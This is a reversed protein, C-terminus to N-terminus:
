SGSGPFRRTRQWFRDPPEARVRRPVRNRREPVGIDFDHQSRGVASRRQHFKGAVAVCRGFQHLAEPLVSRGDVFEAVGDAQILDVGIIEIRSKADSKRPRDPPGFVTMRRSGQYRLSSSAPLGTATIGLPTSRAGFPAPSPRNITPSLEFDDTGTAWASNPTMPGDDILGSLFTDHGIKGGILKLKLSSGGRGVIVAENLTLELDGDDAVTVDRHRDIDDRGLARRFLAVVDQHAGSIGLGTQDLGLGVNRKNAFSVVQDDDIDPRAIFVLRGVAPQRCIEVSGADIGAGDGLHHKGVRMRIVDPAREGFAAAQSKWVRGIIDPGGLPIEPHIRIVAVVHWRHQMLEGFARLAIEARDPVPHDHELGAVIDHRAQPREIGGTM